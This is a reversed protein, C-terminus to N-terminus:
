DALVAITVGADGESADGARYSSCYPSTSLYDRVARQLAGSGIGHVIRVSDQDTQTARDLFNELKEIAQRARLGILVIERDVQELTRDLHVEPAAVTKRGLRHLQDSAVEFRFTGRQVWARGGEISLLEGQIGRGGIEVTDGPRPPTRTRPHAPETLRAPPALLATQEAIRAEQERVFGAFDAGAATDTRIERLRSRGKAKLERVFERARRLEDKWASKRRDRLDEVLRAAEAERAGIETRQAALAAQQTRLDVREEELRRRSAELQALAESFTRSDESQAEVAADLVEQDLGLREAIPLALSRGLSQYVLQYRPELKEVDFDVAAIHCTGSSVAHLKVSRYHTTIALRSSRREFYRLLGVALAAGEEPDTGVGPEDLLILTGQGAGALIERVNAIHASFTSLDREINQADGVDTFVQNFFPLSAGPDAPILIGSQAMLACLGLTKLAVTKGGTNPGTIVLARRERPLLIDIATVPRGTFLLGPHRATRLEIDGDSFSPRSCRYEAAFAARAVGCDIEGLREAGNRIAEGDRRVHDTLEALIRRVIAQEDRVANLLQNNLEVAFLPEIFFTEGSVSRDQVVGQVRSSAGAKVPIVFRDNRITVYQDAVLDSMSRKGVMDHLRRSLTDRLRRISTRIGALEESAQDLLTGDRDLSRHLTEALPPLPALQEVVSAISGLNTKIRSFFAACLRVCDLVDRIEVLAEGVLIFGETAARRLHDRVDPFATIPPSGHREVLEVFQSAQELAAEAGRRPTVPALARCREAGADSTAFDAIRECVGAFDLSDLDRKRMAPLM